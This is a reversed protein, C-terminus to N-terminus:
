VEETLYSGGVYQILGGTGVERVLYDGDRDPGELVEAVVPGDFYVDIVGEPSQELRAPSAVRVHTGSAFAM